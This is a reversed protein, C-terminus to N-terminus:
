LKEFIAVVTTGEQPPFLAVLRKGFPRTIKYLMKSIGNNGLISFLKLRYIESYNEKSMANVEMSDLKINFEKTLNKLSEKKWLGIHHPPLNLVYLENKSFIISDNNPVGISMKGGKKLVKLSNEIFSKVEYIHELVQFSVVADFKELNADAFNEITSNVVNLGKAKCENIAVENLELGVTSKVKSEIKELFNGDGCGIELVADTENLQNYVIEHEWKWKSYYSNVNRQVDEYFRRDGILQSPYYFEYKTIPCQYIRIEDVSDILRSIDINYHELYLKGVVDASLRNLLLCEQDVFPSIVKM